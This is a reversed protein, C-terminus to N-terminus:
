NIREKRVNYTIVSLNCDGDVQFRNDKVKINYTLKIPKGAAKMYNEIKSKINPKKKLACNTKIKGIEQNNQDYFRLYTIFAKRM